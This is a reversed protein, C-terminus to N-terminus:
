NSFSDLYDLVVNFFQSHRLSEHSNGVTYGGGLYSFELNYTSDVPYDTRLLKRKDPHLCNISKIYKENDPVKPLWAVLKYSKMKSIIPSLYSIHGGNYQDVSHDKERLIRVLQEAAFSVEGDNFHDYLGGVVLIKM